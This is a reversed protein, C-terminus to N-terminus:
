SVPEFWKKSSIVSVLHSGTFIKKNIPEKKFLSVVVAFINCGEGEIYDNYDFESFDVQYKDKILKIFQFADLGIMGLDTFFITSPEIKIGLLQTLDKYVDENM